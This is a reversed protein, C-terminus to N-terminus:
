VTARNAQVLERYLDAYDHALRKRGLAIAAHEAAASGFAARLAPDRVLQVVSAALGASDQKDLVFGTEGHLVVEGVSGVQTSVAPVGAHAAEILSVPMGENDSTLLVVDSAALLTAVDGRWGLFRMPLGGRVADAETEERLEGDGAVLFMVDPVEACVARAVELLRDPRKVRTLRGVFLVVSEGGLGLERRAQSRDPIAGLDVGPAISRYKAADGVKAALLERGVHSGVSVLATTRKALLREVGVVLARKWGTFYGTLLHGHFTHVRIPVRMAIAAIRGLAGAKATHTHVIDPRFRRIHGAIRFVARVDDLPRVARGLGEVRTVPIHIGRVDAYSAEGEALDGALVLQEFEDAPLLDALAATQMAPGGV